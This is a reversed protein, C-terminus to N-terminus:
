SGSDSGRKFTEIFHGYEILSNEVAEIDFFAIQSAIKQGWESLDKAGHVKGLTIIHEAFDEIENVTLTERIQAWQKKVDGELAKLLAGYDKGDDDKVDRVNKEAEPILTKTM